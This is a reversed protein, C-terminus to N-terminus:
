WVVPYLTTANGLGLARLQTKGEEVWFFFLSNLRRADNENDKTVMLLRVSRATLISARTRRTKSYSRETWKQSAIRKLDEIGKANKIQVLVGNMAENIDEPSVQVAIEKAGVKQAAKPQDAERSSPAREGSGDTQCSTSNAAKSSRMLKKVNKQLNRIGVKIDCQTNTHKKILDDLTEANKTVQKL